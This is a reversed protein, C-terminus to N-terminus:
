QDCHRARLWRLPPRAPGQLQEGVLHHAQRLVFRDGVLRNPSPEAFQMQGPLDSFAAALEGIMNELGLLNRSGSNIVSWAEVQRLMDAAMAQEVCSRETANLGEM